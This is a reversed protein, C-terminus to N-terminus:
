MAATSVGVVIVAVIVVLELIEKKTLFPKKKVTKRYGKSKASKKAM